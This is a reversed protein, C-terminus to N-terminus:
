LLWGIRKFFQVFLIPLLSFPVVLALWEWPIPELELVERVIPIAYATATILICLLLALWVFLNGTIENRWFSERAPPLNFVHWLQALILTYFTLNNAVGPSAVLYFDAFVLMGMVALTLGLAYVVIARWMVGNIIPERSDRPPAQMVDSGEKNMGLALAPFVDTVMNLFLIQLPLLPLVLNALSAIAVVLIEGLNCSLLYVAFYRINRFIGRGQRIALVVSPFADDKLVLDAVEKAAETGRQGMAIGIDAKKLAPADNIGDGLMGVIASQEQYINV